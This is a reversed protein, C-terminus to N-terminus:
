VSGTLAGDVPLAVTYRAPEGQGAEVGASQVIVSGVWEMNGAGKASSDKRLLINVKTGLNTELYQAMTQSADDAITLTVPGHSQMGPDRKVTTSDGPRSDHIEVEKPAEWKEILASRNTSTPFEVYIGTHVDM